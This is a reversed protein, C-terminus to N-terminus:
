TELDAALYAQTAEKTKRSLALLALLNPVVIAILLLDWVPWRSSFGWFSGALIVGLYLFRLAHGGRPGFLFEGQKEGYFIFVPLSVLAFLTLFVADLLHAHDSPFADAFATPLMETVRHTPIVKWVGTVLVVWGTLNSILFTDILVALMGWFAQKPPHRNVAASHVISATGMGAGGSHIGRSLGWSMSAVIGAGAFAGAPATPIVLAHTLVSILMDPLVARNSWLICVVTIIYALVLLPIIAKMVRGIRRIGGFLLPAVVLVVVIGILSGEIGFSRHLHQSIMAPQSMTFLGVQLILGVAYLRAAWKWGLGKKMTYAPGGVWEGRSNKERYLLGLLIEGYLIVMGFAAVVTMWFLAGPGGLAVALPVGIWNHVGLSGGLATAFADFSPITGERGADPGSADLTKRILGELRSVRLFGFRSLLFGSGILLLLMIPPSWLGYSLVTFPM